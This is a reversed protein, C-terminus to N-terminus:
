SVYDAISAQRGYSDDTPRPDHYELLEQNPHAGVVAM